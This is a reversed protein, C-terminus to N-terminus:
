NPKSPISIKVIFDRDSLPNNMKPNTGGPKVIFSTQRMLKGQDDYGKDNVKGSYM